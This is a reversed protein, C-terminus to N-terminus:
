TAPRFTALAEASYGLERLIADTHEGAICAGRLAQNPAVILPGHRLYRGWEAHTAEAVLGAERAEPSALFAAITQEAPVQHAGLQAGLRFVWGRKGGSETQELGYGDFGTQDRHPCPRDPKGPYSLFDEFNAYANACFMDVSVAQGVGHRARAMLALLVATATVMSTNPDPNVENARMLRRTWLRLGAMDQLAEPVREGMQYLVGGM